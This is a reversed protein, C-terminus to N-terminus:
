DHPQESQKSRAEADIEHLRAAVAAIGEVICGLTGFDQRVGGLAANWFCGLADALDSATLPKDAM